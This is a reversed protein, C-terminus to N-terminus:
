ATASSLTSRTISGIPSPRVRATLFYRAPPTSAGPCVGYRGSGVPGHGTPVV